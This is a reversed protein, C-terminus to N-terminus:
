PTILMLEVTPEPDVTRRIMLNEFTAGGSLCEDFDLRVDVDVPDETDTVQFEARETGARSCSDSAGFGLGCSSL